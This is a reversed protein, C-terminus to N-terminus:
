SGGDKALCAQYAKQENDCAGPGVESQQSTANCTSKAYVCDGLAKFAGGCRADNLLKNCGDRSAQDPVPDKPCKGKETCSFGSNGKSDDSSCAGVGIAFVVGLVAGAVAFRRSIM